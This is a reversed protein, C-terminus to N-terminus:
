FSMKCIKDSAAAGGESEHQPSYNIQRRIKCSHHLLPLLRRRPQVVALALPHVRIVLRRRVQHVRSRRFEPRTIRIVMIHVRARVARVAGVVGRPVIKVLCIVTLALVRVKVM